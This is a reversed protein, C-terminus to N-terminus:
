FRRLSAWNPFRDRCANITKMVENDTMVGDSNQNLCDQYNKETWIFDLCVSLVICLMVVLFRKM